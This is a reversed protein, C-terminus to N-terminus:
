GFRGQGLLDGEPNLPGLRQDVGLRRAITAARDGNANMLGFNPDMQILASIVSIDGTKVALMLATDGPCVTEEYAGSVYGGITEDYSQHYIGLYDGFRWHFSDVAEVTKDILAKPEKYANKLRKVDQTYIAAIVEKTWSKGSGGLLGKEAERQM